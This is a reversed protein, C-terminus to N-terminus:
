KECNPFVLQIKEDEELSKAKSRLPIVFKTFTETIFRQM